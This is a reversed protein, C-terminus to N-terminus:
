VRATQKNSRRAPEVKSASLGFLFGLGDKHLSLAFTVHCSSGSGCLIAEAQGLGLFEACRLSLYLMLDADLTQM